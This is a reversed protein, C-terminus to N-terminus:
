MDNKLFTLPIHFSDSNFFHTEQTLGVIIIISFSPLQSYLEKQGIKQCHSDCFGTGSVYDQVSVM